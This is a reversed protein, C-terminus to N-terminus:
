LGSDAARRGAGPTVLGLLFARAVLEARSHVGLKGFLNQIHTSLTKLSISLEQAIAKSTSGRTLLALIEEERHTLTSAAHPHVRPRTTHRKIHRHVRAVLENCDYPKTIVDDAGILLGAMRDVSESHRDSLLFIPIENGQDRLTRCIEYGTTDPLTVELLLLVPEGSEAAELAAVGTEVEVTEYGARQLAGAIARSSREDSEAILIAKTKEGM